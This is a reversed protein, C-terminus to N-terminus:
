RYCGAQTQSLLRETNFFDPAIDIHDLASRPRICAKICALISDENDVGFHRGIGRFLHDPFDAFHSGLGYGPNDQRVAVPIM